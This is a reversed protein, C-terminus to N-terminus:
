KKKKFKETFSGALIGAPLAVIGISSFASIVAFIKGLATIPYVDGYGVTTLAAAAWWVSRIISGFAEPQYEAELLYMFTSSILLVTAAIITMQWSILLLMIIFVFLMIILTGLAIPSMIGTVASQTEQVVVNTFAGVPVKDHYEAKCLLYRRFLQNSLHKVLSYNILTSYVLRLYMFIQRALFLLFASTLLSALSVEINLLKFFDVLYFWLRSDNALTNIDGNAKVFEFIPYFIGIGLAESLTSLISMIMLIFVSRGKLHTMSRYKNWLKLFNM